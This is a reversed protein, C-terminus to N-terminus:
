GRRLEVELAVLDGRNDTGVSGAGDGTLRDIASHVV